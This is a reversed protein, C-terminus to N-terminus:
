ELPGPSVKSNSGHTGPRSRASHHFDYRQFGAKDSDNCETAADQQVGGNLNV